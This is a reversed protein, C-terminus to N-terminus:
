PAVFIEGEPRQSLQTIQEWAQEPTCLELNVELDVATDNARGPQAIEVTDYLPRLYDAFRLADEFSTSIIRAIPM